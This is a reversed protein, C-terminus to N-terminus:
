SALQGFVSDMSTLDHAAGLGEGYNLSFEVFVACCADELSSDCESFADSKKPVDMFAGIPMVGATSGEDGLGETQPEVLKRCEMISPVDDLSAVCALAKGRLRM